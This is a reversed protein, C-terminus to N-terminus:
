SRVRRIEALKSQTLRREAGDFRIRWVEVRVGSVQLPAASTAPTRGGARGPRRGAAQARGAAPDLTWRVGLLAGALEDLHGSGPMARVRAVLTPLRAPESMVAPVEGGPTLLYARVVRHQPADVSAFM